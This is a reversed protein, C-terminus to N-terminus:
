KPKEGRELGGRSGEEPQQWHEQGRVLRHRIDGGHAPLLIHLVGYPRCRVHRLLTGRIAGPIQGTYDTRTTMNFTFNYSYIGAPLNDTVYYILASGNPYEVAHMESFTITVNYVSPSRINLTTKSLNITGNPPVIFLSFNFSQDYGAYPPDRQNDGKDHREARRFLSTKDPIHRAHVSRFNIPGRCALSHAAYIRTSLRFIRLYRLVLFIELPIIIYMAILAYTNRIAELLLVFSILFAIIPAAILRTRYSIERKESM